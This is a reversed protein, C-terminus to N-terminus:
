HGWVIQGLIGFVCVERGMIKSGIKRCHTIFVGDKRTEIKEHPSFHGSYNYGWFKMFLTGKSRLSIISGRLFYIFGLFFYFLGLSIDDEGSWEVRDM